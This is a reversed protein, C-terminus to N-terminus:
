PVALKLAESGEISVTRLGSRPGSLSHFALRKGDPSFSPQDGSSAVKVWRLGNAYVVFLDYTKREASYLSLAIKGMEFGAIHAPSPVTGTIAPTPTVALCLRNADIRKDEIAQDPKIRVAMAYQEQALCWQGRNALLDGYHVYADHLRQEVDKYGPELRYLENFAEIAREWDAGWYSIANLYLAALKRQAAVEDDARLELAKDLYHIAEEMRDKNVLELGWQRYTSFLLGKVAQPKYDPDLNRLQELKLAAEEWKKEEYFTQAQAYLLDAAQSRIESTPTAQTQLKVKIEEVRDRTDRYDPVLRLVLEFEALALEYEGKELHALGLSYHEAAAEQTLRDRERLGQYVGLAGVGLFALLLFTAVLAFRVLWILVMQRREKRAPNAKRGSFEYGCYPCFPSRDSVKAGCNDCYM